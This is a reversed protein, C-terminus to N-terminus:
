FFDNQGHLLLSRVHLSLPGLPLGFLKARRHVMQHEDIFGAQAGVRTAISPESATLPEYIARQM